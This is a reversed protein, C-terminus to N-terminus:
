NTLNCLKGNIEANWFGMDVAPPANVVFLGAISLNGTANAFRKTSLVPAPAVKVTASYHGFALDPPYVMHPSTTPSLQFVAGDAVTVFTGTVPGFDFVAINAYEHGTQGTGKTEVSSPLYYLKGNIPETDNLFGRVAGSWGTGPFPRTFDLNAQLLLRINQCGKNEAQLPAGLVLCSLIAAFAATKTLNSM